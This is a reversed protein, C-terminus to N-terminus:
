VLLSLSIGEPGPYRGLARQRHTPEVYHRRAVLPAGWRQLNAFSATAVGPKSFTTGSSVNVTVPGNAAFVTFSGNGITTVTAFFGTSIPQVQVLMANIATATSARNHRSRHGTPWGHSQRVDAIESGPESYATRSSVVVTVPTTGRMVTFTGSGLATVTAPIEVSPLPEITITEANVVNLKRTITGGVQVKEGIAMNTFSAGTVGRESYATKPFVNVTVPSGARLVTFSTHGVGVVTAQFNLGVIPHKANSAHVTSAGAPLVGLAGVAVIAGAVGAGVSALAKGRSSWRKRTM